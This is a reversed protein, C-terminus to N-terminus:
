HMNGHPAAAAASPATAPIGGGASQEPAPTVMYAKSLDNDDDGREAIRELKATLSQLQPSPNDEGLVRARELCSDIDDAKVNPGGCEAVLVKLDDDSDAARAGGSLAVVVMATFVSGKLLRNM